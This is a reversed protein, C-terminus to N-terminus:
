KEVSETTGLCKLQELGLGTTCDGVPCRLHDIAMEGRTDLENSLYTALCDRCINLLHYHVGVERISPFSSINKLLANTDTLGQDSLMEMVNDVDRTPLEETCIMCERSPAPHLLDEFIAIRSPKGQHTIDLLTPIGLLGTPIESHLIQAMPTAMHQLLRCETLIHHLKHSLNIESRTVQSYTAKLINVIIFQTINWDMTNDM